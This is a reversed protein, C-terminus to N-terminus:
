QPKAIRFSVASPGTFQTVDGAQVKITVPDGPELGHASCYHQMEATEQAQEAPTAVQSGNGFFGDDMVLSQIKLTGDAFALFRTKPKRFIITVASDTGIPTFTAQVSVHALVSATIPVSRSYPSLDVHPTCFLGGFLDIVCTKHSHRCTGSVQLTRGIATPGLGLTGDYDAEVSAGAQLDESWASMPQLGSFHVLEVSEQAPSSAMLMFSVSAMGLSRLMM